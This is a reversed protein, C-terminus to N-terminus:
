LTTRADIFTNGKWIWLHMLAVVTVSFIHLTVIICQTLAVILM